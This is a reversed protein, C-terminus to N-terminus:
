WYIYLFSFASMPAPLASSCVQIVAPETFLQKHVPFCIATAGVTCLIIVNRYHANLLHLICASATRPCSQLCMKNVAGAPIGTLYILDMGDERTRQHAHAQRCLFIPTKEVSAAGCLLVSYLCVHSSM